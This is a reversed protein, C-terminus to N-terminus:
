RDNMGLRLFRDHRVIHDVLVRYVYPGSRNYGVIVDRRIVQVYHRGSARVGDRDYYDDADAKQEKHDDQSHNSDSGGM